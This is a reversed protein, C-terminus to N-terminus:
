PWRTAIARASTAFGVTTNASSGVPESSETAASSTM